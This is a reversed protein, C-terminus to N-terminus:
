VYALIGAVTSLIMLGLMSIAVIKAALNKCKKKKKKKDKKFLNFKSM